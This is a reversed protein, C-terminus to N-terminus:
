TRDSSRYRKLVKRVYDRTAEFPPVGGYREVKREGAHYAALSFELRRYSPFRFSWQHILYSLYKAGGEVNEQPSFPRQVGFRACTAPMLQMLGKAGKHSVARADFASEVEIVATLLAVPIRYKQSAWGILDRISDQERREEYRALSQGECIIRGLGRPKATAQRTPPFSGLHPFFDRYTFARYWGVRGAPSDQAEGTMDFVVTLAKGVQLRDSHRTLIYARVRLTHEGTIEKGRLFLAGTQGKGVISPEQGDITVELQFSPTNNIIGVKSCPSVEQSTHPSAGLSPVWLCFLGLATYL